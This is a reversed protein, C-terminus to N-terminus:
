EAALPLTLQQQAQLRARASALAAEAQQLFKREAALAAEEGPQPALRDLEDLAHRLFEAEAAAGDRAATLSHLRERAAALAAWATRAAEREAGNRAFADLLARHTSPDLLGRGDHQGHVEVLAEGVSKLLAVGAPQDNIWAQSRGDATLRRRLILPEGPEAAVGAEGLLARAPHSPPIDFVASAAAEAAGARVLARDARAGAALALAELLISKGAGTEGTLACLGPAFVAELADILVVNRISLSVLM